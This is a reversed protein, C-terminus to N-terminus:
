QGARAAVSSARVSRAASAGAAPLGLYAALAPTERLRWIKTDVLYHLAVLAALVAEGAFMSVLFLAHVGLAYAYAAALARVGLPRCGPDLRARTARYFRVLGIYHVNHLATIAATTIMIDDTAFFGAFTAAAVLAEFRARGRNGLWSTSLRALCVAVFAAPLVVALAPRLGDPLPLRWMTTTSEGVHFTLATAAHLRLLGLAFLALFFGRDWGAGATDGPQKRRYIRTLGFHQACLHWLGWYPLVNTLLFARGPAFARAAVVLGLVLAAAAAWRARPVPGDAELARLWTCFQHPLNFLANFAVYLALTAGAGLLHGAVVFATGVAAAGAGFWLRDYAPTVIAVSRGGM